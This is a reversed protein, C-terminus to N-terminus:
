AQIRCPRLCRPSCCSWRPRAIERISPQYTNEALFDIMYHYVRQELQTLPESMPGTRTRSCAVAEAPLERGARRGIYEPRRLAAAGADLTETIYACGRRDTGAISRTRAAHARRLNGPSVASGTLAVRLPQFLKGAGVGRAEALARLAEEVSRRQGPRARALADRTASLVDRAGRRDKWQKAVADADFEIEDRLYPVAQRVIDDITRARVKLLDILALYWERARRSSPRPRSDRRRRARPTVCRRSSRRRRDHEPAPREDVRAEEHRLDGGEEVTWRDLVARDDGARTMVEIDDGPSWGLLALFNLM